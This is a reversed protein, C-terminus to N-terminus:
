SWENKEKASPPTIHDAACGALRQVPLQNPRPVLRPVKLLVIRKDRGPISGCTKLEDLWYGTMVSIM